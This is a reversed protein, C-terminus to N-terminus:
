KNRWVIYAMDPDDAFLNSDEQDSEYQSFALKARQEDEASYAELERNGLTLMQFKRTARIMVYQRAVEPLEEFDMYYSLDFSIPKTFTYTHNKRDYLKSGRPVVDVNRDTADMTLVNDPILIEGSTNPYLKVDSERNFSYTGACIIKTVETLIAEANDAVLLGSALSDVPAEGVTRLMSNIAQLKTTKM